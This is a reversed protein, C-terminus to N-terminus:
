RCEFNQIMLPGSPSSSTAVANKGSQGCHAQATNFAATHGGVMRDYEISIAAPNASLVRHTGGWGVPAGSCSALITIITVGALIRM